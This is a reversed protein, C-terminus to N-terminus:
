QSIQETTLAIRQIKGVILLFSLIGIVAHAGVFVLAGNFSGSRTWLYGIAIPTVIGAVNGFTNFVAGSLGTIEKPSVDAILAWGLSGVGKGFYAISMMIIVAIPTTVYNCGVVCVSHLLGVVIPTKRAATLSCGVELLSDSVYGGILGGAFGFIAPLAAFFGAQLITMGRQEVLYIPFWTLFFWTLVNICYQGLYIGLLMRNELLQLLIRWTFPRRRVTDIDVLGGGQEIYDVEASNAWPHERPNHVLCAM